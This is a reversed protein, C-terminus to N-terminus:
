FEGHHHYADGMDRELGDWDVGSGMGGVDIGFFSHDSFVSPSVGGGGGLLAAFSDDPQPSHVPSTALSHTAFPYGGITPFPSATPHHPNHHPSGPASIMSKRGIIGAERVRRLFAAQKIAPHNPNPALADLIDGGLLLLRCLKDTPSLPSLPIPPTGASILELDSRLLGENALKALFILSYSYVQRHM